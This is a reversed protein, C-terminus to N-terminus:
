AEQILAFLPTQSTIIYKKSDVEFLITNHKKNKKLINITKDKFIDFIIEELLNLNNLTEASVIMGCTCYLYRNKRILKHKNYATHLKFLRETYNM